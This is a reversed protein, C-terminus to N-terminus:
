ICLICFSILSFCSLKYMISCKGTYMVRIAYHDWTEANPIEQRLVANSIRRADKYFPWWSTQRAKDLWNDPVVATEHTDIFEVVMFSM